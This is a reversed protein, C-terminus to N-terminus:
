LWGALLLPALLVVDALVRAGRVSVRAHAVHIVVLAATSMLVAAAVVPPAGLAMAVAAGGALSVVWLPPGNVPGDEWRSILACNFWCLAAFAIVGPVWNEAFSGADALLPIAVGAAFVGGVAAEKVGAALLWKARVLHVAAFYACLAGAVIFGVALYARPLESVALAIASGLATLATAGWARSSRRAARHRDSTNAGDRADLGRDALYVAWVVLALVASAALPVAVGAVSALFVQWTVAVAPADLALVNPWLWWPHSDNV